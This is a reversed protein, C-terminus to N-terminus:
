SLAEMPVSLLEKKRYASLERNSLVTWLCTPSDFGPARSPILAVPRQHTSVLCEALSGLICLVAGVVMHLPLIVRGM